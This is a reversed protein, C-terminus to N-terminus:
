KLVGAAQLEDYRQAPLGATGQIVEANHEGM